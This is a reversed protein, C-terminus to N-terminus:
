HGEHGPVVVTHQDMEVGVERFARQVNELTLVQDRPGFAV